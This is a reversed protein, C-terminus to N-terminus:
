INKPWLFFFTPCEFPAMFDYFLILCEYLKRLSVWSKPTNLEKQVICTGFFSFVKMGDSFSSLSFPFITSFIKRKEVYNNNTFTKWRKTMKHNRERKIKTIQYLISSYCHHYRFFHQFQKWTVQIKILYSKSCATTNWLINKDGESLPAQSL